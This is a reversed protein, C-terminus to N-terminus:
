EAAENIDSATCSYTDERAVEEHRREVDEEHKETDVENLTALFAAYNNLEQAGAPSM